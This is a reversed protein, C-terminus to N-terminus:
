HWVTGDFEDNSSLHGYRDVLQNLLLQLEEEGHNVVDPWVCHRAASLALIVWGDHWFNRNRDLGIYTRIYEENGYGFSTLLEACTSQIVNLIHEYEASDNHEEQQLVELHDLCALVGIAQDVARYYPVEETVGVTQMRASSSPRLVTGGGQSTSVTTWRNVTEDWFEDIFHTALFRQQEQQAEDNCEGSLVLQSWFILAMGHQVCRHESSERYYNPQEIADPSSLISHDWKGSYARRRFSKGDWSYNWLSDAIRRAETYQELRVCTIGALSNHWVGESHLGTSHDFLDTALNLSDPSTRRRMANLLSDSTDKAKEEEQQQQNGTTDEMSFRPSWHSSRRTDAGRPSPQFPASLTLITLLLAIEFLLVFM